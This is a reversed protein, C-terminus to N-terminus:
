CNLGGPSEKSYDYKLFLAKLGTQMFHSFNLNIKCGPHCSLIRVVLKLSAASEKQNLM